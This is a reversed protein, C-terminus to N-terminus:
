KIGVSLSKVINTLKVIVEYDQKSSICGLTSHLLKARKLLKIRDSIRLIKFDQKIFEILDTSERIDLCKNSGEYAEDVFLENLRCDVM